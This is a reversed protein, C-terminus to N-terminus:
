NKHALYEGVLAGKNLVGVKSNDTQQYLRIGALYNHNRKSKIFKYLEKLRLSIDENREISKQFSQALRLSDYPQISKKRIPTEQGNRDIFVFVLTEYAPREQQLSNYMSSYMTYPALPFLEKYTLMDYTSLCFIFLIFLSIFTRRM